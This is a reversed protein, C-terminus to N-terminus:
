SRSRVLLPTFSPAFATHGADGCSVVALLEAPLEHQALPPRAPPSVLLAGAPLAPTRALAADALSCVTQLVEDQPIPREACPPEMTARGTLRVGAPIWAVTDGLLLRHTGLDDAVDDIARSSRVRPRVCELVARWGSVAALVESARVPRRLERGLVAAVKVELSADGGGGFAAVDETVTSATLWGFAGAAIRAPDTRAKVGALDDGRALRWRLNVDRVCAADALSMDDFRASIAPLERGESRAARLSM